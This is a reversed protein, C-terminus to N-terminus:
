LFQGCCHKFKKGSGCFCPQKMTMNNPVTPDIFYWQEGIKVFASCEHHIHQKEPQDATVFYAKFEVQAHQKGLMKHQLVDLKQWHTETAWDLLEQRNLLHQQAPVTTQIIYDIEKQVFACYRSRMLQEATLAIQQQLHLPQCCDSYPQQSLCPCTMKIM